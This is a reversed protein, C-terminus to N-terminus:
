APSSSCGSRARRPRRRGTTATARRRRRLRRAAAEVTRPPQQGILRYLADTDLSVPLPARPPPASIATLNVEPRPRILAGVVTNVTKAALWAAAFLLVLNATWAYKRFFLDLM